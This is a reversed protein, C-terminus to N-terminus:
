DPCHALSAGPYHLVAPFQKDSAGASLATVWGNMQRGGLFYEKENAGKRSKFFFYIGIYLVLAFYCLLAALEFVKM